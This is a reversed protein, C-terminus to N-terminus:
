EKLNEKASALVSQILSKEKWPIQSRLMVGVLLAIDEESLSPNASKTRNKLIEVSARLFEDANM